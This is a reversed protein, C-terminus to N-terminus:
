FPAEGYVDDDSGPERMIEDTQRKLNEIRKVIESQPLRRTLGVMKSKIQDLDIKLRGESVELKTRVRDRDSLPMHETDCFKVFADYGRDSLLNYAQHMKEVPFRDDYDKDYKLSVYRSEDRWLEYVEKVSKVWNRPWNDWRDVALPVMPKWAVDPIHGLHAWSAGFADEYKSWDKDMIDCLSSCFAKYHRNFDM